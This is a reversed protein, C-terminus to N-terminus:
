EFTRARYTVGPKNWSYMLGKLYPFYIMESAVGLHNALIGLGSQYGLFFNAQSLIGYVTTPLSDVFHHRIELRNVIQKQVDYDYSAGIMVYPAPYKSIEDCWRNVDWYRGSGSVYVCTYHSPLSPPLCELRVNWNTVCDGTPGPIKELRVGSELLHNCSFFNDAGHLLADRYQESTVKLVSVKEVNPWSIVFPVSRLSVESHNTIWIVFHLSEQCLKQYCWFIDGIGQPVGITKM